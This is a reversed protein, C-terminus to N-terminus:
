GSVSTGGKTDIFAMDVVFLPMEETTIEGRAGGSFSFLFVM